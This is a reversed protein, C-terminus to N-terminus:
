KLRITDDRSVADAVVSAMKTLLYVLDAWRKEDYADIVMGLYEKVSPEREKEEEIADALNHLDKLTLQDIKSILQRTRESIESM